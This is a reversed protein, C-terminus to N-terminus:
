FNALNNSPNFSNNEKSLDSIAQLFVVDVTPVPALLVRVLSRLPSVAVSVTRPKEKDEEVKSFCCEGLRFKTYVEFIGDLYTCTILKRDYHNRTYVDINEGISNIFEM